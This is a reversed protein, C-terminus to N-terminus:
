PAEAGSLDGAASAVGPDTLTEPRRARALSSQFSPQHVDAVIYSVEGADVMGLQTRAYSEIRGPSGLKTAELLLEQHRAEAVVSEERIHGLKFASQALVVQELLVGFVVLLACLGSVIWM